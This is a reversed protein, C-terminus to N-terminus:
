RLGLLMPVFFTVKALLVHVLGCHNEDDAPALVVVGHPVTHVDVGICAVGDSPASVLEFRVHCVLNPM